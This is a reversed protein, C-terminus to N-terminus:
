ILVVIILVAAGYDSFGTIHLAYFAGAAILSLLIHAISRTTVFVIALAALTIWAQGGEVGLMIVLIAVLFVFIDVM